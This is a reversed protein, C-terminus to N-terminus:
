LWEPHFLLWEFHDPYNAVIWEFFQEKNSSGVYGVNHYRMAFGDNGIIRWIWHVGYERVPGYMLVQDNGCFVFEDRKAALNESFWSDIIIPDDIM